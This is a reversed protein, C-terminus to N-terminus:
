SRKKYTYKKYTYTNVKTHTDKNYTYRRHALEEAEHWRAEQSIGKNQGFM